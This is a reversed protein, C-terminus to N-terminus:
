APATQAASQAVKYTDLYQQFKVARDNSVTWIHAVQTRSQKGSARYIGDYYGLMVVKDGASFIEDPDVILKEFGAAIRAFVSERIEEVGHYPSRDSLPSSDAAVWEFDPSFYELVLQYNGANFAEYIQNILKINEHSM